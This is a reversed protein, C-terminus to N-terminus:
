VGTYNNLNTDRHTYVVAVLVNFVIFAVTMYMMFMYGSDDGYTFYLYFGGTLTVPLFVICLLQMTKPISM